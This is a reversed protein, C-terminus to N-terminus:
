GDLFLPLVKRGLDDIIEERDVNHHCVGMAGMGICRHIMEAHQDEDSSAIVKKRVDEGRATKSLAEFQKPHEIVATISSPLVLPRWREWSGRDARGGHRSCPVRCKPGGRDHRGAAGAAPHRADCGELFAQAYRSGRGDDSWPKFHDPGLAADPRVEGARRVPGPPRSSLFRENSCRYGIRVGGEAGQVNPGGSM